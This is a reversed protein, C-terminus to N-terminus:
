ADLKAARLAAHRGCFLTVVDVIVAIALDVLAQKRHTEWVAEQSSSSIQHIGTDGGTRMGDFIASIKKRAESRVDLVTDKDIITAIKEGDKDQAELEAVQVNFNKDSRLDLPCSDLTLFLSRNNGSVPM